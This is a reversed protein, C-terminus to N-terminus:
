FGYKAACLPGIGREVSESNTLERGCCSCSGTQHGYAEAAESPNAAVDLIEKTTEDSCERSSFFRGGQIKGLYDGDTNKVYIAGPNRSSDGALSFIFNALRLKPWKLGNGKATQFADAIVTIDIDPASEDREAKAKRNEDRKAICKHVAATQKDTLSGYKHLAAHLSKAFDSYGVNEAIWMVVAENSETYSQIADVLKRAKAQERSAKAAERVHSPNKYSVKGTGKCKHCPGCDRGAWSIFRGRGRCKPCDEEFRQGDDVSSLGFGTKAAYGASPVTNDLDDLNELDDFTVPNKPSSM